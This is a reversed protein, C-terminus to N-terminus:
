AIAMSRGIQMKITVVAFLFGGGHPHPSEIHRLV